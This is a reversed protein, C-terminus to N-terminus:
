HRAPKTESAARPEQPLSRAGNRAPGSLERVRPARSFCGPAGRQWQRAARL